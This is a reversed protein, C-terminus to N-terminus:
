YVEVYYIPNLYTNGQLLEFPLHTGTAAGSKGMEAIKEGM